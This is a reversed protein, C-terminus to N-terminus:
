EVPFADFVIYRKDIGDTSSETEFVINVLSNLQRMNRASYRQLSWALNPLTRPEAERSVSIPVTRGLDANFVRGNRTNANLMGVSVALQRRRQDHVKSSIYEKTGPDFQVINHDGSVIVINGAGHNIVTHAKKLSPEVADILAELEGARQREVHQIHANESVHEQGVARKAVLKMLEVILAGAVSVALTGGLTSVMRTNPDTFLAFLAEFSGAQPPRIYPRATADFPYRKRVEGTVAYHSVLTITRAIGEISQAGEYAPLLHRDAVDGEFKAVIRM